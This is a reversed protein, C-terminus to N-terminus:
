PNTEGVKLDVGTQGVVFFDQVGVAGDVHLLGDFCTLSEKVEHRVTTVDATKTFSNIVKM